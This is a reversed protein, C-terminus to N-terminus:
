AGLDNGPCDPGGPIRPAPEALVSAASIFIMWRFTAYHFRTDAPVNAAFEKNALLQSLPVETFFAIARAREEETISRDARVENLMSERFRDDFRGQAHRFFFYSLVPILFVLLAPLVFTTLFHFKPSKPSTNSVTTIGEPAPRLTPYAWAM